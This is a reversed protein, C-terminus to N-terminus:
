SLFRPLTHTYKHTSFGSRHFRIRFGVLRCRLAVCRLAVSRLLVAGCRVADSRIAAEVNLLGGVAVRGYRSGLSPLLFRGMAGAGLRGYGVLGRCEKVECSM